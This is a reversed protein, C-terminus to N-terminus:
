QMNNMSEIKAENVDGVVHRAELNRELELEEECFPCTKGDDWRNSDCAECLYVSGSM